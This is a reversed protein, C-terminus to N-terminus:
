YVASLEKKELLTLLDINEWKIFWPHGEIYSLQEDENGISSLDIQMKTNLNDLM